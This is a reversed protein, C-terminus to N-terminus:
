RTLGCADKGAEEQLAACSLQGSSPTQNEDELMQLNCTELKQECFNQDEDTPEVSRDREAALRICDTRQFQPVCNCLEESLQRCPTKCGALSLLASFLLTLPASRRMPHAFIGSPAGSALLPRRFTPHEDRRNGPTWKWADESRWSM